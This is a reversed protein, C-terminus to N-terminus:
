GRGLAIIGGLVRATAPPGRKRRTSDLRKSGGDFFRFSVGVAVSLDLFGSVVCSSGSWRTQKEGFAKEDKKKM